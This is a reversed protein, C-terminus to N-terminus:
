MANFLAKVQDQIEDKIDYSLCLSLLAEKRDNGYANCIMIEEEWLSLLYGLSNDEKRFHTVQLWYDFNQNIIIEELELVIEPTISPYKEEWDHFDKIDEIYEDFWFNNQKFLEQLTNASVEQYNNDLDGLNVTTYFKTPINFSKFFDQEITM